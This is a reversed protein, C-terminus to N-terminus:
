NVSPLVEPQPELRSPNCLTQYAIIIGITLAPICILIAFPMVQLQLYALPTSILPVLWLFSFVAKWVPKLDNVNTWLLVAPILLLTWDYIMMFPVFWVLWVIAASYMITQQNSNRKWFLLFFYLGILSCILYLAQAMWQLDPLLALWFAQLSYANWMSFYISSALNANIKLAYTLYSLSAEPFLWLNLGIQTMLGIVLGLLAKWSNRWDLLWLLGIGILFQPKFFLLSFILGASLHKKRVWLFYTLSLVALCIFSNQGFSAASFVPLWTLALLFYPKPHEAGLWKMSLWLCVLGFGVWLLPAWPYPILSFPVMLLAYHPPNLYPNYNLSGGGYLGQQISYALDLSYLDSSRGMLIIKGATYFAVFDTGLLHGALDVNGKGALTSIIWGGWLAGGTFWPYKMRKTTLLNNIKVIMAQM